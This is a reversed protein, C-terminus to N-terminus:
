GGYLRELPAAVATSPFGPDEFSEEPAPFSGSRVDAAFAAIAERAGKGQEAYRRVFRPAIREEIGLLDHYVLVQGDCFQGAGIGITPIEVLETVERALETPICELVLSFAGAAEVAAAAALLAARAEAGRGQVKFGGFKHISQPTLGLHAQVPIEAAVLAELIDIRAGEIKVASAGGEKVFRLANAVAQEPGLHFSGFPMDAILLARQLGRRVAKVHHLMEDMTVSLTDAHGLVVMALSDGVLVMDVGAADACRAQPYDYATVMVLREGRAPAERLQPVSIKKSSNGM